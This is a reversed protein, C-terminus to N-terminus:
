QFLEEVGTIKIDNDEINLPYVMIEKDESLVTEPKPTAYEIPSAEEEALAKRFSEAGETIVAIKMNETQLYKKLASNVDELTVQELHKRFLELHHGDIGYFVDDMAYGLREQTSPAFHLVYKSLFNKTLEFDEKTMGNNVLNHFERLAARLTFHRTENPVPRIWIEFIQQSRPVNVPPMQRMGGQPFNEIYSYDGYNLGRAERIVQYLHSSSNRHEGLWSNAVALAYWDKNGRLLNIPFGMSLATAAAQKEVIVVEKGNIAPPNIKENEIRKGEPLRQLDSRLNSVFSDDFDGGVGLIFNNRNYHKNYFEKVDEITISNLGSITGATIHGYPTGKFIENYLVAKGLEEDSSYKLTTNLYNLMNSKIRKFDDESFAPSLLADMFLPYYEKLNDKHVRGSFTTVEVGANANYSAALPYLLELIKTYANKQTSGDSLLQATLSALGEKGAPDFRSGAFFMIRVSVTPDQDAKLLVVENNINQSYMVATIFSLLLFLYKKM